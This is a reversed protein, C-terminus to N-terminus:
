GWGRGRPPPLVGPREGAGPSSAEQDEGGAASAEGGWRCGRGSHERYWATAAGRAVSPPLPGDEGLGSGSREQPSQYDRRVGQAGQARAKNRVKLRKGRATPRGVAGKHQHKHGVLKREEGRKV